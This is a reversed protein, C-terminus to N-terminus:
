PPHPTKVCHPVQAKPDMSGPAAPRQTGRFRQGPGPCRDSRPSQGMISDDCCENQPEGISRESDRLTTASDIKM